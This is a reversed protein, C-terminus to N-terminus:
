FKLNIGVIFQKTSPNNANVTIVRGQGGSGGGGVSGGALATSVQGGYGNGEPDVALNDKVIPSYLIFPNTVNVYVRLSNIWGHKFVSAPVQYGLNISRCKVFSGDYYGVTSGFPFRDTGADPAPFANTPNTRTWYDVKVQNNRSQMFFPFGQAGGDDTLYPLVVKMGMRAYIVISLDFNKYTV